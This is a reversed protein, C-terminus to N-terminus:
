EMSLVDIKLQGMMQLLPITLDMEPSAEQLSSKAFAIHGVDFGSLAADMTVWQNEGLWAEAWM